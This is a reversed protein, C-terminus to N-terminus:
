LIENKAVNKVEVCHNSRMYTNQSMKYHNLHNYYFVMLKSIKHSFSLRGEM